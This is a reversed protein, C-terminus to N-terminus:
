RREVGDAAQLGAQDHHEHRGVEELERVEQLHARDARPHAGRLSLIHLGVNHGIHLLQLLVRRRRIAYASM